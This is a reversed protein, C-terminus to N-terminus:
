ESIITCSLSAQLASEKHEIISFAEKMDMSDKEMRIPFEWNFSYLLNAVALDVTTTGFQIRPCTRWGAGFPILKFDHGQYNISRNMFREPFFKEPNKWSEPNRGIAFANIYIRIKSAIEYGGLSCRKMCERPILLPAPPHLRLTEMVVLKLYQLQHLDTEEVMGKQGVIIRIEEKAKKMVRPHQLLEAMAWEVTTSCTDTGAILIDMKKKLFQSFIVDSGRATGM